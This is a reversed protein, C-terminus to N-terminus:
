RNKVALEWFDGMWVASATCVVFDPDVWNFISDALAKATDGELDIDRLFKKIDTLQPAKPEAGKGTYTSLYVMRNREIGLSDVDIKDSTVMGFYSAWEGNISSKKLAGVIRPTSYRDPEPGYKKLENLMIKSLNEASSINFIPNVQKGNGIVVLPPDDRSIICDYFILSAQCGQEESVQGHPEITIKEDRIVAKRRKSSISRGSVAYACCPRGGSTSGVSIIRGLYM